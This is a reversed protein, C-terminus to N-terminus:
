ILSKNSSLRKIAAKVEDTTIPDPTLEWMAPPPTATDGWPQPSPVGSDTRSCKASFHTHVQATHIHCHTSKNERGNNKVIAIARKQDTIWLHTLENKDVTRSEEESRPKNLKFCPQIKEKVFSISFEIFGILHQRETNMVNLSLNDPFIIPFKKM